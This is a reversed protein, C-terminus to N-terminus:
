SLTSSFIFSSSSFSFTSFSGSSHGGIVRQGGTIVCQGAVYLIFLPRIEDFFQEAAATNRHMRHQIKGATCTSHRPDEGGPPILQDGHIVTLIHQGGGHAFAAGHLADGGNEQM